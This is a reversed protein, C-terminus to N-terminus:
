PRLRLPPLGRALAASLAAMAALTSFASGFIRDVGSSLAARAAVDLAAVGGPTTLATAMSATGDREAHNLSAFIVVGVATAGLAGGLSRSIAISATAAGLDAAPAASQIVVQMAPMVTGLGLGALVMLALVAMEPLQEVGLALVWFSAAALALGRPAYRMVEGSRDMWRGALMAGAANSLTVPLLILGSEAIGWGRGLQLFLPLYLTSAIFTAAYGAVVANGRRVSPRSLLAIPLLPTACRREYALLVILGIAGVGGIATQAPTPPWQHATCTLAYFLAVTSGGFLAIGGWDLELHGARRRPEPPIRLALAAALIGLPVNVLFVSRWGLHETMVAGFLPGLTSAAAYISAFWGQYRPRERPAVHTGVLAQALTQLGGGGLGQVARAAILAALTNAAACLLSGVVFLGVAVLLTGRRGHADGIRGYVPAAVTAAILYASVIWPLHAVDGFATGLVPLAAALIMQDLAALFLAVMVGPFVVRFAAGGDRVPTVPGAIRV